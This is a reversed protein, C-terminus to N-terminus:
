LTVRQREALFVLETETPNVLKSDGFTSPECPPEDVKAIQDRRISSVLNHPGSSSIPFCYRPIKLKRRDSDSIESADRMDVRERGM